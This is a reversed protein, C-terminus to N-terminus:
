KEGAEVVCGGDAHLARRFDSAAEPLRDRRARLARALRGGEDTAALLPRMSIDFSAADDIFAVGVGHQSLARVSRATL